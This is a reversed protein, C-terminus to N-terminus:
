LQTDSQSWVERHCIDNFLCSKVIMLELFSYLLLVIPFVFLINMM